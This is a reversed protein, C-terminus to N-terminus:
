PKGLLRVADENFIERTMKWLYRNSFNVLDALGTVRDLAVMSRSFRFTDKGRFQVSRFVVTRMAPDYSELISHLYTNREGALSKIKEILACVGDKYPALAPHQNFWRRLLALKRKFSVPHDPDYLKASFAGKNVHVLLVDIHQELRSWSAALHGITQFAEAAEDPADIPGGAFEFRYLDDESM